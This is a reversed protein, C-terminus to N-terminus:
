SLRELVDQLGKKVDELGEKSFLSLLYIKEDPYHKKMIKFSDETWIDKKTLIIIRSKGSLEQSYSALENKLVEFEKIFNDSSGDILFALGKTRGIHKLFRLGLGLGQSAGEIIGPIDALVIDKWGLRLVGLHPIKTTFPYDGIKSTSNTLSQILSSKGANPLGVLGIDAILSMELRISRIQGEEGPQAYSPAQNRSSKFHWNGKGGIGGKLFIWTEDIQDFSYLIDNTEYDFVVTGLPVEILFDDGDKGHLRGGMGPQGNKAMLFSNNRIHSLTRLNSRVKFVINGGKGGDGGDPGGKPIYKERRFSVCGKGGHGSSVRINVEDVFADM